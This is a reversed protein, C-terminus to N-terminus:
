REEMEYHKNGNAPPKTEFEHLRDMLSPKQKAVVNEPSPQDKDLNLEMDLEILRATKAALEAEQPFPKAIEEKALEQQQYLNELQGQLAKMREPMRDLANDIRILNGRPDTGLETKHTMKGKLLATYEAKFSDFSVSLAFGRYHGILVPELNRIERCADMLAAGANEKDTLLDGRVEMGAFGDKPHLNLALTQM